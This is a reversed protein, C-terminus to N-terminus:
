SSSESSPPSSDAPKTDAPAAPAPTEESKSDEAQKKEEVPAPPYKKEMEEVFNILEGTAGKKKAEDTTNAIFKCNPFGSCGYFAKGKKTKCHILDQQCDPCKLGTPISKANKCEPYGNCALFQGRRGFKIVMPTGCKECTMDTRIPERKVNEMLEGAKEIDKAFPTYFDNLVKLRTLEGEEIEDLENELKSTFEVNIIDPFHEVLLVTVTKGLETPSLRGREKQVYHRKTLTSITPAYTSPRGIGLEELARVLTAESFRAPPKTFHQAPILEKLNLAEGEELPPLYKAEDKEEEKKDDDDDAKKKKRKKPEEGALALWGPFLIETGSAKFTYKEGAHIAATTVRLQADAMQCSVFREWVLKYLAFQDKNLYEKIQQPERWTSTPRIAEHAEQAGKRSRYFNPKEPLHEPSFKKPIYDRVENLAGGSINFSDTRMYTILGVSGEEGVEIGEYLQQAVLMTKSVSWNLRNVAAQQMTSTIFPPYPHRKKEKKDVKGVVFSAHKIEHEIQDAEDKNPIEAKEGNIKDLGARFPAVPETKKTLDAEMSWYEKPVFKEIEEERECIIRLAVSQVRGASLGSGVKKWLLPSLKYGLIRDLIRRAQQSEVKDLDLKGAKEFAETVAKKTIENFSVRFIKEKDKTLIEALHWAIAEGERDPDPALYVRKCVEASEKLEKVLEKRDRLIQYKPEFNKELDVGIRYKPLDRVHGMSAKLVYENGLYKNITKAKAPSEVIVLSKNSKRVAKKRSKKKTAKKKTTAM